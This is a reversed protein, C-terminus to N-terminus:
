LDQATWSQAADGGWGLWAVVAASRHLDLEGAKVRAIQKRYVKEGRLCTPGLAKHGQGVAFKYNNETQLEQTIYQHEWM